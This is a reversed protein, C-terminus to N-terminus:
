GSGGPTGPDRHSALELVAAVAGGHQEGTEVHVVAVDGAHTVSEVRVSLKTAKRASRSAWVGVPICSCQM